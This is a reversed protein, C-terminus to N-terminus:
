QTAKDLLLLGGAGVMNLAFPWLAPLPLSVYGLHTLLQTTAVAIWFGVCWACKVFLYATPKRGNHQAWTLLWGRPTELIKDEVVLLTLRAVVLTLGAFKALLALSQAGTVQM